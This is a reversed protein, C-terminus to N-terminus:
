ARAEAGQTGETGKRILDRYIEMRQLGKEVYQPDYTKGYPGGTNWCRFMEQSESALDLQFHEAFGALLEIAFRYHFQPDLLDNVSGKRGVMHYGMIQTFGWSTALERLAEEELTAIEQGYKEAFPPSLYRAHFDGSKPHLMEAIEADLDRAEIGSYVPSKGEAVAKLHAYVAPEFRAAKPNGGSENATLAGLFEPPVSSYGCAPLIFRHCRDFVREVLKREARVRAAMRTTPDLSAKRAGPNQGTESGSAALRVEFTM